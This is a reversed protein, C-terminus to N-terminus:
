MIMLSLRVQSKLVLDSSSNGIFGITTGGDAFLIDGGDADLTIDGGVDITFNGAHVLNGGLTIQDNFTAAGSASMDLTLATIFSSGDQGRFLIDGDTARSQIEVNDSTFDILYKLTVM